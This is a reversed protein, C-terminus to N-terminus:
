HWQGGGSDVAEARVRRQWWTSNDYMAASGDADANIMPRPPPSTCYPDSCLVPMPRASSSGGAPPLCSPPPLRCPGDRDEAVQHPRPGGRQRGQAAVGIRYVERTRVQHHEDRRRQLPHRQGGSATAAGGGSARCGDGDAAIKGPRPPPPIPRAMRLATPLTQTAHLPAKM